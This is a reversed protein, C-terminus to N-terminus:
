RVYWMRLAYIWKEKQAERPTTDRGQRQAIRIHTHTHTHLSKTRRAERPKIDYGVPGKYPGKFPGVHRKM